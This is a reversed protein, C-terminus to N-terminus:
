NIFVMCSVILASNNAFNSNTLAASAGGTDINEELSIIDGTLRVVPVRGATYTMNVFRWSMPAAYSNLSAIPCDTITAAGVATGKNSLSIRAVVFTMNGIRSYYGSQTTYTIGTTAGGFKLVPTWDTRATFNGLINTGDDFTIGDAYVNDWSNTASGLSDARDTTPVISAATVSVVGAGGPTLTIDANAATTISAGGTGTTIDVQTVGTTNGITVARAAAGTGINIANGAADTGISIVGGNLTVAADTVENNWSNKTAM